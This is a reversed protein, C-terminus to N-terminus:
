QNSPPYELIKRVTVPTTSDDVEVLTQLLSTAAVNASNTGEFVQGVSHIKFFRSRTSLGPLLAGLRYENLESKDAATVYDAFGDIETIESPLLLVNEPFELDSRRERWGGVATSWSTSVDPRSANSILTAITVAGSPPVVVNSLSVSSTVVASAPSMPNAFGNVATGNTLVDLQSRLGAGFGSFPTGSSAYRFNPNVTMMGATGDSFDVIDLLAWDPIFQNAAESAPQPQMRLTRWPVGTFVKGLDAAVAFSGPGVVPDPAGPQPPVGPSGSSLALIPPLDPNYIAKAADNPFAPDAPIDAAAFTGPSYSVPPGFAVETWIKGPRATQYPRSLALPVRLRPDHQKVLRTEPPLANEPLLTAGGVIQWNGDPGVALGEPLGLPAPMDFQATGAGDSLANFFDYGSVWDRVLQPNIAAPPLPDPIITIGANDLLRIQDFIVFTRFFTDARATANSEEINLDFSLVKTVSGGAPVTGIRVVRIGDAPVLSQYRGSGDGWPDSDRNDNYPFATANGPTGFPGRWRNEVPEGPSDSYYPPFIAKDIQAFIVGPGNYALPYPNYVTCELFIRVTMTTGTTWGYSYAVAVETLMPFPTYGLYEQPIGNTKKLDGSTAPPAVVANSL